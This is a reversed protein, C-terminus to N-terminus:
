VGLKLMGLGLIACTHVIDRRLNCINSRSNSSCILSLEKPVNRIKQFPMQVQQIICFTSKTKPDDTISINTSEVM